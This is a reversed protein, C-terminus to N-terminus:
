AIVVSSDHWRQSPDHKGSAIPRLRKASCHLRQEVLLINLM